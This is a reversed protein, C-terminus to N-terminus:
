QSGEEEVAAAGQLRSRPVGAPRFATGAEILLKRITGSGRGTDAVLESITEGAEYRRRLYLAYKAREEGRLAPPPGPAVSLDHGDLAGPSVVRVADALRDVAAQRQEDTLPGCRLWGIVPALLHEVQPALVDRIHTEGGMVRRWRGRSITWRPVRASCHIGDERADFQAVEEPVCMLALLNCVGGSGFEAIQEDSGARACGQDCSTREVLPILDIAYDAGYDGRRALYSV